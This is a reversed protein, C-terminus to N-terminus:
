VDANNVAALAIPKVLWVGKLEIKSQETNKKFLFLWSQLYISDKRFVVWYLYM